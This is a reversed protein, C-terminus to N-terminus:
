KIISNNLVSQEHEPEDGEPGVGNQGNSEGFSTSKSLHDFLM